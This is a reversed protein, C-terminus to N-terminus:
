YKLRPAMLRVAGFGIVAGVVGYIVPSSAPKGGSAAQGPEGGPDPPYVKGGPEKKFKESASTLNHGRAGPNLPDGFYFGTGAAMAATPAGSQQYGLGANCLMTANPGSNANWLVPENAWFDIARDSGRLEAWYPSAITVGPWRSQLASTVGDTDDLIRDALDEATVAPWHMNRVIPTTFVATVETGAGLEQVALGVLDFCWNQEGGITSALLRMDSMSTVSVNDGKLFARWFYVEGDEAYFSGTFPNGPVVVKQSGAEGM